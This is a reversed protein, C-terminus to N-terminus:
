LARLVRSRPHLPLLPGHRRLIHHPDQKLRPAVLLQGRRLPGGVVQSHHGPLTCAVFAAVGLQLAPQQGRGDDEILELEPSSGSAACPGGEHDESVDMM